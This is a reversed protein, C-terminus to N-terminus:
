IAYRVKEQFYCAYADMTFDDAADDIFINYRDGHGAGATCSFVVGTPISGTVPGM